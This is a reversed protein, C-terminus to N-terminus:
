GNNDGIKRQLWSHLYLEIAVMLLITVLYDFLNKTGVIWLIPPVLVCNVMVMKLDDDMINYAFKYFKM